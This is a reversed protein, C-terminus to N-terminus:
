NWFVYWYKYVSLTPPGWFFLVLKPKRSMLCSVTSRLWKTIFGQGCHKDRFLDWYYIIKLCCSFKPVFSRPLLLLLLLSLLGTTFVKLETVITFILRFFMKSSNKLVYVGIHAWGGSWSPIIINVKESSLWSLNPSKWIKDM